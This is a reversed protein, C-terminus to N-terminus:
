KSEKHFKNYIWREAKRTITNYELLEDYNLGGSLGQAKYIHHDLERQNKIIKVMLGALIITIVTQTKNM